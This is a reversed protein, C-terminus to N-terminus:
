IFLNVNGTEARNLYMAVGGEEIGDILEERRIGMLDMSMSCAVLRVGAERATRILEPLMAVNKKRMIGKIMAAGMGGMNMKSLKLRDAGRPMMWGFMREVLNKAVHVKEPKRLINLGWFTFFMTVDSGMAAAGNAIIFGALAKDLDGSFLVLTASKPQGAPTGAPAAAPAPRAQKLITAQCAGNKPAIELLRHGTSECWAAVDSPFGPDGAVITVAQGEAIRDLETRLKLIPGPCQLGRADIEQVIEFQKVEATKAVPTQQGTDEVIERKPSEEKALMGVAARYTKYGGSLNRCTFGHQSLIRCALYGRLGVQCFALIEKDQPLEGLRERLEDLPVNVAGPITGAEVETPTRVDLLFRSEGPAAVDEVHCLRADGELVNTAVFGAYNVPDKASGYPPAYSLEQEALDRVTLGARLAVAIVDIRKDISEAGVAQAGLIRGSEPEFLLKLSIQTAGPYYGAHSSPHVYVKEHPAGAQKLSKESLGTMGIALDFVKCIATGQSGSYLSERGLANDGAIRGQRNAPGALPILAKAAGVLHTVEVADGVAYIQPDSTRMHPDVVIGGTPGIELGADRALEAEPRIGVALVVLGSPVSEGTSLIVSLHDEEERIATVSTGLRLDVGHQELQQHVPAVMEPDAAVFVQKEIEVLTAGLGRNRLAEVMELGIYGGGVVVAHRPDAKGVAQNIADMDQLNRLTFVGPSDAGPIPPRLPEAGPSLILVDYPESSEQGTELHRVAVNRAERDIRLVETRTRVDIRFRKRMGEPTQVLLRDREAITGGIHYPLGCNAFSIHEGREFIVIEADESLRRARAAASAGGAVGGVIVIRKRESM